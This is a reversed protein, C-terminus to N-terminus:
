LGHQRGIRVAEAVAERIFRSTEALWVDLDPSGSPPVDFPPGDRVFYLVAGM